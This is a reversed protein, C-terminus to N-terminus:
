KTITAREKMSAYPEGMKELKRSHKKIYENYAKAWSDYDIRLSAVTEASNAKNIDQMLEDALPHQAIEKSKSKLAYVKAIYADTLMDYADIQATDLKDDFRKSKVVELQKTLSDHLAVDYDSTYSIEDLLRKIDKFKQDDVETMKKYTANVSDNLLTVEKQVTETKTEKEEVSDAKKECSFSLLVLSTIILSIKKM